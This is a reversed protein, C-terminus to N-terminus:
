TNWKSAARGCYFARFACAGAYVYYVLIRLDTGYVSVAIAQMGIGTALLTLGAVRYRTTQKLIAAIVMVGGVIELASWVVPWGGIAHGLPSKTAVADRDVLYALGVLAWGTAVALEFLHRRIREYLKAGQTFDQPQILLHM